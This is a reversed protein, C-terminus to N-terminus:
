RDPRMMRMRMWSGDRREAKPLPVGDVFMLSAPLAAGIEQKAKPDSVYSTPMSEPNQVGGKGVRIFQKCDSERNKPVSGETSTMHALGGEAYTGGTM